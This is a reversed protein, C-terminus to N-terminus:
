ILDQILKKVEVFPDNDVQHSVQVFLKAVKMALNEMSADFEDVTVYLKEM